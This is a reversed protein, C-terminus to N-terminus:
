RGLGQSAHTPVCDFAPLMGLQIVKCDLRVRVGLSRCNRKSGVQLQNDQIEVIDVLTGGSCTVGIWTSCVTGLTAASWSDLVASPDATVGAKLALLGSNTSPPPPPPSPCAQTISSNTYTVKMGWGTPLPGCLSNSGVYLRVLSGMAPSGTAWVEPITGTLSCNTLSVYRVSQWSQWSPPLTGSIRNQLLYVQQISSGWNSWSNPLTGTLANSGLYLEQFFPWAGVTGWAAPLTGNLGKNGTADLVRLATLGTLGDPLSGSLGLYSIDLTTIDSGNCAVGRWGTCPDSGTWTAM